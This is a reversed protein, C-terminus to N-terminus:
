QALTKDEKVKELIDSYIDMDEKNLSESIVALHESASKCEMSALLIRWNFDNNTAIDERVKLANFRERINSLTVAQQLIPNRIIGNINNEIIEQGKQRVNPFEMTADSYAYGFGKLECFKRFTDLHLHASDLAPLIMPLDEFIKEDSKLTYAEILKSVMDKTDALNRLDNTIWVPQTNNNNM